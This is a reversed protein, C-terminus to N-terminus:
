FILILKRIFISIIRAFDKVYIDNNSNRITVVKIEKEHKSYIGHTKKLLLIIFLPHDTISIIILNILYKLYIFYFAYKLIQLKFLM